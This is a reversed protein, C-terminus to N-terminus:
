RDGPPPSTLKSQLKALSRQARSSIKAVKDKITAQQDPTLLPMLENFMKAQLFTLDEEAAALASFATHVVNEDLTDGTMVTLLDQRAQLLAVKGAIVDMRYDELIGQTEQKQRNTLNLGKLLRGTQGTGRGPYANAENIIGGAM